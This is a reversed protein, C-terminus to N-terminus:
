YHINITFIKKEIFYNNFGHIKCFKRNETDKFIDNKMNKDIKIPYEVAIDWDLFDECTDLGEQISEILEKVKM